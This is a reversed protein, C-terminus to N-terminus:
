KALTKLTKWILFILFIYSISMSGSYVAIVSLDPLNLLKGLLISGIVIFFRTSNWFLYIDQKELITFIHQFPVIAFRIAFMIGMIQVYTGATIWESGFILSFFCPAFFCIIGIPIGGIVVLKFLLKIFFLKLSILDVKALQSVEGLFVQSVSDVVLNLPAGIIRTAFMFFGVVNAGYFAAFLLQPLNLGLSDILDATGSFIPFRKYRRAVNRIGNFSVSKFSFRDMKWAATGLSGSGASDGACQGLLLGIPGPTFLGIGIQLFVRAFGRTFKTKGLQTFNRKRIAWYSLIQYAGSGFLGLPILWLYCGLQPVNAWTVIQQGCFFILFASFITTGFLLVFCLFLINAANRDDEPLPIAFEYRFSATVIFIGLISAYVGFVGFDEPSYLRTLLPSAIINLIQGLAAGGALTSVSRFFRNKPIISFFYGIIKASPPLKLM